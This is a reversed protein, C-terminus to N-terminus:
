NVTLTITDEEVTGGGYTSFRANINPEVKKIAMEIYDLLEDWGLYLQGYHHVFRHTKNDKNIIIWLGERDFVYGGKIKMNHILEDVLDIGFLFNSEMSAEQGIHYESSGITKTKM